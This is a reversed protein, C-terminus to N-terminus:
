RWRARQALWSNIRDVDPPLAPSDPSLRSVPDHALLMDHADLYIVYNRAIRAAEEFAPSPLRFKLHALLKAVHLDREGPHGGLLFYDAIDRLAKNIVLHRDGTVALEDPAETDADVAEHVIVNKEPGPETWADPGFRGPLVTEVIRNATPESKEDPKGSYIALLAFVLASTTAASLRIGSCTPHYDRDMLRWTTSRM